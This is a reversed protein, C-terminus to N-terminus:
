HVCKVLESLDKIDIQGYYSLIFVYNDFVWVAQSYNKVTYIEISIDDITLTTAYGNERDITIGTGNTKSQTLIIQNGNEDEYTREILAEGSKFVDTEVFGEPIPDLRYETTITDKTNGKFGYHAHTEYIHIVFDTVTNRIAPICAGTTFLLVIAAAM